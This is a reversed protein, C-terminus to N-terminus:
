RKGRLIMTNDQACEALSTRFVHEGIIRDYAHRMQNASVTPMMGGEGTCLGPCLISDLGYSKAALLAARFALYANVTESVDGPVRMTPACILYPLERRGTAVVTAQGVPLEGDYAEKLFKQLREQLAIGFKMTYWYDIGGDMFGFSNAPSVIADVNPHDFIEGHSVSVGEIGSFATKWRKVMEANTDRLSIKM